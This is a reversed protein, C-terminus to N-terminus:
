ERINGDVDAKFIGYQEPGVELGSLWKVSDRDKSVMQLLIQVVKMSIIFWIYTWSVTKCTWYVFISAQLTWFLTKSYFRFM